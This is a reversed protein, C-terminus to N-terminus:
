IGFSAGAASRLRLIAFLNCSMSGTGARCAPTVSASRMPATGAHTATISATPIWKAVVFMLAFVTAFCLSAVTAAHRFGFGAVRM